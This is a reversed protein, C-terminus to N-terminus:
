VVYTAGTSLQARRSANYKAAVVAYAEKKRRWLDVVGKHNLGGPRKCSADVYGCTPPEVDKLYQCPGCSATAEDNGKFDFFHWLTIGSIDDNRLATDVDRSIVEVQYKTTWRADTSNNSWEFIGGAGTESVVFPKNPYQARVGAALTNWQRAPVSLDGFYWGPYSNFSILSAHELCRDHLLKDSAWTLFRTPDRSRTHEACAAYAPCAEQHDSPGENFWGWTMISPHNLSADLMEDLQQLQYKMFFSWDRLDEVSTSPGLTEEWMAVGAEDLRDLWRQDQPYHAGRVYNAGAERMLKLDADLQEDTPSAGTDPWQTHHNWGHLRVPRGNLVVRSTAADTGWSRLGFREIVTGGGTSVALTHLHPDEMCWARPHPVRVSTLQIAGKTATAKTVRSQEILGDFELVLQVPGSFNANTLTVNIDILGLEEARPSVYARWVWVEGEDPLDHLLVSRMLGGYQWFDGGTHLPATTRNFRNDALVFLERSAAARAPAPLDLWWPVYGGARHDGVERGDVFVRCYFSCAMFQLRARGQQHFSTRYMAVGRIGLVGPLAVDMTSPVATMNPTLEARRPDFNADMSDFGSDLHVGYQWTGDLSKVRRKGGYRPWFPPETALVGLLSLTLHFWAVLVM